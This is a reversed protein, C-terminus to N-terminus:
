KLTKKNLGRFIYGYPYCIQVLTAGEIKTGHLYSIIAMMAVMKMNDIWPLRRCKTNM